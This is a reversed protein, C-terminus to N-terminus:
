FQLIDSSGQSVLQSVNTYSTGSAPEQITTQHPVDVKVTIMKLNNIPPSFTHVANTIPYYEIYSSEEVQNPLLYERRPVLITFCNNLTANTGHYNQVLEPIEVVLYPTLKIRNLDHLMVTDVDLYWVITGQNLLRSIIPYRM